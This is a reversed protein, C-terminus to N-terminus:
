LVSTSAVGRQNGKRSYGLYPYRPRLFRAGRGEGVGGGKAGWRWGNNQSGVPSLMKITEGKLAQFFTLIYSHMIGESGDIEDKPKGPGNMKM